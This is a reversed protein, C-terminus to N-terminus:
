GELTKSVIADDSNNVIAALMGQKEAAEKQKSIDRAIKSAGIIVGAANKIPSIALSLPIYQGSKAKRITQFHQIKRGNRIENIIFDEEHLRDPPIILSIHRGIAEM